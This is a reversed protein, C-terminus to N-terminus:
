LLFIGRYKYVQRKSYLKWVRDFMRRPRNSTGTSKQGACENVDECHKGRGAFGEQCHCYFSGPVNVCSLNGHCDKFGNECETIDTKWEKTVLVVLRATWWCVSEM